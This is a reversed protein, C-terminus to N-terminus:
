HVTSVQQFAWDLTSKRYTLSTEIDCEDFSEAAGECTGTDFSTSLLQCMRLTLSEDSKLDASHVRNLYDRITLETTDNM